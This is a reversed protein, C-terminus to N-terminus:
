MKGERRSDLVCEALVVLAYAIARKYARDKMESTQAHDGFSLADKAEELERDADAMTAHRRKRESKSENENM